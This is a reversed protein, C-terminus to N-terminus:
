GQSEVVRAIRQVAEALRDASTSGFSLRISGEGGPGFVSGPVAVVHQEELLRRCFAWDDVAGPLRLFLFLSGGPEAFDDLGEPRLAAVLRDRRDCLERRVLDSHRDVVPLAALLGEQGPRNASIVVCDQVKLAQEILAAPGALFGLRWGALGLSKSFSCATVVRTRADPMSAPSLPPSPGYHVEHYTQDSLLWLDREVILATLRRVSEDDYRAGTPNNPNILVLGRTHPTIAAALADPSPAFGDDVSTPVPMPVAGLATLTMAHNFYWPSPLLVEDGPEVLAMLAAFCGQNAGATVIIETEPDYSVGLREVAYRALAARLEPLGPDPTYRHVVPDDLAEAVREIFESPPPIDVAGQDLRIVDAGRDALELARASLEVLPPM